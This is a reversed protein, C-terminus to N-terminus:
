ALDLRGVGFRTLFGTGRLIRFQLTGGGAVQQDGGISGVVHRGNATRRSGRDAGSGQPPPPRGDGFAEKWGIMIVSGRGRDCASEM